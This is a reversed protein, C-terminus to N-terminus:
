NDEEEIFGGEPVASLPGTQNKPSIQSLPISEPSNQLQFYKFEYGSLDHVIPIIQMSTFFTPISEVQPYQFLRLYTEYQNWM